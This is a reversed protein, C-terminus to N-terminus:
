LAIEAYIRHLREVQPILYEFDKDNMIVDDALLVREERNLQTKMMTEIQAPPTGDRQNVRKIQEEVPADVVLLRDLFTYEELNFLLPIVVICYHAKLHTLKTEIEQRILPHLLEELWRREEPHNFIVERLKARDLSGDSLLIAEKFHDIIDMYAPKDFQTLEHAIADADIIPAGHKAFLNAVSSKGSGIGGTLVVILM